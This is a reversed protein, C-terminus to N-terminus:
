NATKVRCNRLSNKRKHFLFSFLHASEIKDSICMYVCFHMVFVFCFVDLVDTFLAHQPWCGLQLLHYPELVQLACGIYVMVGEELGCLRYGAPLAM